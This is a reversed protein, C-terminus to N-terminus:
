SKAETPTFVVTLLEDPNLLENAVERVQEATVKNIKIIIDDLSIFENLYVEMKGLRNMRSSTSELGLMLNGKLQTKIRNLESQSIKKNRMQKFEKLILNTVHELNIRDTGVYVGFIGTDSLAENFTYVSYAYGFKERISQFLRSSMGGGLITNMIFFPFKKHDSYPYSRSGMCLHTQTNSRNFFEIGSRSNAVVSNDPVSKGNQLQFANDVLKLLDDHQINGAASIVIRDPTYKDRVLNHFDQHNFSNVTEKTGLISLGLPHGPFLERLFYDYILEDPTEELNNIEEMIVTKERLIDEDRFVSNTLIDSLVDVAIDINEDPVQLYFCTLEKGTFANLQGGVAEIELAIDLASRKKTGKFIMHELFHSIGQNKENESRGGVNIWVGIAVSRVTPIRETVLRIGNGLITKRYEETL